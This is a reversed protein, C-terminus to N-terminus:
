QIQRWMIRRSGGGSKEVLTTIGGSSDNVIKRSAGNVIANLTPIGGSFVVGSSITDNTDVVGDANTDLVAYNLMKGSFAEQELLKGSGRRACADDPELPQPSSSLGQADDLVLSAEPAVVATGPFPTCGPNFAKAAPMWWLGLLMAALAQLAIGRWGSGRDISPM